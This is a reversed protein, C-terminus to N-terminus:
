ASTTFTRPPLYFPESNSRVTGIDSSRAPQARQLDALADLDVVFSNTLLRWLFTQDQVGNRRFERLVGHISDPDVLSPRVVAAQM